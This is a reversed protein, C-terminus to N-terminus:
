VINMPNHYQPSKKGISYPRFHVTATFEIIIDGSIAKLDISRLLFIPGSLPILEILLTTCCWASCGLCFGEYGNVCTEFKKMGGFNGM